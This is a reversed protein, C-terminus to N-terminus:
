IDFGNSAAVQQYWYSSAKRRRELTERDVYLFGYRKKFGNIWSFNDMLSWMYYGRVNAGDTIAQHVVKLHDRVFDIRAQDDIRGAADPSESLGIGNETVYIPIGPRYHQARILLDYLGEPAIEWDWDTFHGRPNRVFQFLGAISFAGQDKPDGSTNLAFSTQPAVASAHHPYYYNVGIFDLTDEQFVLLEEADWAPLLNHRRYLALIDAPYRGLLPPDIFWRNLIGDALHAADRDAPSDTAPYIRSMNLVLGIQGGWRHERELRHYIGVARAHAVLLHHAVAVAARFDRRAPPHLGTVYGNLTAWAPENLTAWRKVRDGYLQFAREAYTLFADITAKAEWGGRDGLAAPLDWHYLTVNPEIGAALLADILRDYFAAGAPNFRDDGGPFLRPWAISFRYGTHGMERMLAVDEAWRHYHDCAIDPAAGGFIREPHEACFRDWVSPGRGDESTAGEIQLAATASGWVFGEPFQHYMATPGKTPPM